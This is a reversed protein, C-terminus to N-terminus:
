VCMILHIYDGSKEQREMVLNVNNPESQFIEVVMLHSTMATQLYLDLNEGILQCLM